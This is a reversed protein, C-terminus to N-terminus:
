SCSSHVSFHEKVPFTPTRSPNLTLKLTVKAPAKEPFKKVGGPAPTVDVQKTVLGVAPLETIVGPGDGSM